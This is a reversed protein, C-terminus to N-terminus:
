CPLEKIKKMEEEYCTPCIGHSFTAETHKSVYWEVQTWYGKDDRIKKCYSCIPLIGRLTGIEDLAQQLRRREEELADAARKRETINEVVAINRGPEEGPYWLPSVTINVWVTEGDKRLYRKELDYQRIKGAMLLGTKDEHRHLDDQHTISQFTTALMEEETRGVMECLCRNVTLFRGTGIEIEAVGVAAQMFIARFRTESERLAEGTRIIDNFLQSNAIAGAIQMGIKEALRLDRQTYANPKRSRFHLSAIVEDGYILPVGMVSRMGAAITGSHDPFQAQMDEISASHILMANRTKILGESVSGKMPFSNGPKRGPVDEGSVYAIRVLSNKLEHLNVAVRDFPILKRTETAFREYVEDINLTSGILRGIDALIAIEQEARIRETIDQIISHLVTRGGFQIGSSLVEVDRLSGDALRHQFNFHTGEGQPVSAMAQRVESAHLNNIDTIRLTLMQERPYGYFGLAAANADIIKGDAPDILLMVALNNAFQNHYSQESERLAEYAESKEANLRQNLMIIFGYTWFLGVIMADLVPLYNFLTPKFIDDFPAGALIMGTRYMFVAGHVLCVVANFNASAAISPMKHVFLVYATWLSTGAIAASFIVSRMFANNDVYVFYAIAIIFFTSVSFIIKSNVEKGLFRMVGIYIFVTGLFICSNQIILTLLYISPIGRLLIAAFGAIEAISWMLWWGVGQYHKSIKYQQYLVIVQIMHTIGLVLVLTRIDLNM